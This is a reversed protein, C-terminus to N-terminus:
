MSTQKSLIHSQFDEIFMRMLQGQIFTGGNWDSASAGRYRYSVGDEDVKRVEVVGAYFDDGSSIRYIGGEVVPSMLVEADGAVAVVNTSNVRELKKSM